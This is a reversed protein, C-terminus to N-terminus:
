RGEQAKADNLAAIIAACVKECLAAMAAKEKTTANKGEALEITGGEPTTVSVRYRRQTM